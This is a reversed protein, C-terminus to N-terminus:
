TPVNPTSILSHVIKSHVYSWWVKQLTEVRLSRRWSQLCAKCFLRNQLAHRWDKIAQLLRRPTLVNCFTHHLKTCCTYVLQVLCFLSWKMIIHLHERPWFIFTCWLVSPLVVLMAPLAFGVRGGTVGRVGWFWLMVCLPLFVLLYFWMMPISIASLM